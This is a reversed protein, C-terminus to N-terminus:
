RYVLSALIFGYFEIGSHNFQSERDDPKTRHRQISISSSSHDRHFKVKKELYISCALCQLPHALYFRGTKNGKKLLM